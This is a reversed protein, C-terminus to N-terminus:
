EAKGKKADKTAVVEALMAAVRDEVAKLEAKHRAEQEEMQARVVAAANKDKADDLFQQAKHKLAYFGRLVGSASDSLSALQEVTRIGQHKLEAIQSPQMAPWLDLPTGVISAEKGRKFAEYEHPFRWQYFDTVPTHIVLDRNGPVTITIFDMDVYKAVGGALYTEKKSFVPETSFQVNLKTDEGYDAHQVFRGTRPDRIGRQEDHEFRNVIGQTAIAVNLDIESHTNNTMSTEQRSRHSNRKDDRSVSSAAFQLPV